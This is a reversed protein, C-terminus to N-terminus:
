EVVGCAMRMGGGGLKPNDSFNDGGVHVMLALSHVRNLDKLRPAVVPTTATGDAAVYLVPLDGLHGQGYPGEHKGTKEPDWHGGAAGAITVVGDVTTNACDPKEHLHFGHTGAPLNKLDPTFLIGEPTWTLTVIGIPTVTGAEDIENMAIESTHVGSPTGDGGCATLMAVCGALAFQKLLCLSFKNTNRENIKKM